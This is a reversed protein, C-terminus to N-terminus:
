IREGRGSLSKFHLRYVSSRLPETKENRERQPGSQPGSQSKGMGGANGRALDSRLVVLVM